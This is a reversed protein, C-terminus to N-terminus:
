SSFFVGIIVVAAIIAIFIWLIARIKKSKCQYYENEWGEKFLSLQKVDDEAVNPLGTEGFDNSDFSGTGTSITSLSEEIRQSPSEKDTDQSVTKYISENELNDFSAQKKDELISERINDTVVNEAKADETPCGCEPCCEAYESFMKGCDPCKILAM